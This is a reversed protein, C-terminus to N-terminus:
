LLDPENLFFAYEIINSLDNYCSLIYMIVITLSIVDNSKILNRIFYFGQKYYPRTLQKAYENIIQQLEVPLYM